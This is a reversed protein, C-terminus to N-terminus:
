GAPRSQRALRAAADADLVLLDDPPLSRRQEGLQHGVGPPNADLWADIAQRVRRRVARRRDAGMGAGAPRAVSASETGLRAPQRRREHQRAPRHLSWAVLPARRSRLPDLHWDIPDGFWLTRYGLLDFHRKLLADAARPSRSSLGAATADLAAATADRDVGAFFRRPAIERLVRLAADPDALEPAHKRLLADPHDPLEVPAVRELWKSAEQWGRYALEAVRMDRIRRHGREHREVPSGILPPELPLSSRQGDHETQQARCESRGRPRPAARFHESTHRRAHASRERPLPADLFRRCWIEFSLMTWLQLDLNRGRENSRLLREVYRPEFIGRQRCTDSLLIDRAFGALEGRFWRALPVAFGHKPRDIIADPLMGRMAQKFLYKTTGDRLRFRAPITAAFEVLRHDLLPPRAEISHAM